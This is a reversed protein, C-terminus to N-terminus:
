RFWVNHYISGSVLFLKIGCSTVVLSMASVRPRVLSVLYGKRNCYLEVSFCIAIFIDCMTMSTKVPSNLVLFYWCNLGEFQSVCFYDQLLLKFLTM